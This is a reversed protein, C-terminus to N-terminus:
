SSAYESPNKNFQKHFCKRFYKVDNFGVNLAVEPVSMTKAGLL